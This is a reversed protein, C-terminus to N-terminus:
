LRTRVPSRHRGAQPSDQVPSRSSSARSAGDSVPYRGRRAPIELRETTGPAASPLQKARQGPWGTEGVPDLKAACERWEDLVEATPRGARQEVQAATWEPAGAAALRRHLADSAVGTVHAVLDAVTWLPTGPVPAALQAPALGAVRESVRGHSSRYLEALNDSVTEQGGM